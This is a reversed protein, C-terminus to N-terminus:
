PGVERGLVQLVRQVIERSPLATIATPSAKREWLTTEWSRPSRHSTLAFGNRQPGAACVQRHAQGRCHDHQRDCAGREPLAPPDEVQEDTDDRQDAECL